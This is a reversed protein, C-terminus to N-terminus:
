NSITYVLGTGFESLRDDSKIEVMSAGKVNGVTASHLNDVWVYSDGGSAPMLKTLQGEERIAVVSRGFFIKGHKNQHMHKESCEFNIMWKPVAQGATFTYFKKM